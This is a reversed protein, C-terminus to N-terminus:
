GNGLLHEESMHPAPSSGMHKPCILTPVLGAQKGLRRPEKQEAKPKQQCCKQTVPRPTTTSSCFPSTLLQLLCTPPSSWPQACRPKPPPGQTLRTDAAQARGAWGEGLCSLPSRPPGRDQLGPATAAQEPVRRGHLGWKHFACMQGPRVEAPYHRQTRLGPPGPMSLQGEMERDELLWPWAAEPSEETSLHAGVLARM